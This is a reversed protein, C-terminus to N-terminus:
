VITRWFVTISSLGSWIGVTEISDGTLECAMKMVDPGIRESYREHTSFTITHLNLRKLIETCVDTGYKERVMFLVGEVILGYM